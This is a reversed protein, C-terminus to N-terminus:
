MIHSFTHSIIRHAYLDEDTDFIIACGKCENSLKAGTLDAGASLLLQVVEPKTAWSLPSEGFDNRKNPDAGANLLIEICKINGWVLACHLITLGNRFTINPDAEANLLIVFVEKHGESAALALPTMGRDDKSRCNIDVGEALLQRVGDANGEDSYSCLNEEKRKKEELMKEFKKQYARSSILENWSKCVKGCAAFSDTDLSFFISELIHPVSKNFLPEFNGVNPKKLLHMVNNSRSTNQKKHTLKGM